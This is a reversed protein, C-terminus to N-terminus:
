ANILGAWAFENLIYVDSIVSLVIWININIRKKFHSFFIICCLIFDCGQFFLTVGLFSIFFFYFFWACIEPLRWIKSDGECCFRQSSGVRGCRSSRSDSRMQIQCIFKSQDRNLSSSSSIKVQWKWLPTWTVFGFGFWCQSLSFM